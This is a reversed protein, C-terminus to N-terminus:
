SDFVGTEVIAKGLAQIVPVSVSNGLLKMWRSRGAQLRFDSPFGQIRCAEVKSIKRYNGQKYIQEIFANKYNELKSFEVNRTAVFDNTDSAVLTSFVESQPLYIRNIGNIGSSIKSNKFEYRIEMPSIIEKESLESLVSSFRVGNAVLSKSQKYVSDLHIQGDNNLSMVIDEQPSLSRKEQSLVNYSYIIEKLVGKRVLSKLASKKISSDISKLQEFSLPNGDRVGFKKKRRNRLITYCLMEEEESINDILDWSHITSHGNRIDNFLFFDNVEDTKQFKTRAMPVFEGFIDTSNFKQKDVEEVDIDDLVQYLKESSVNSGPIRFKRFDEINRFGVIYVRIRNQLVGYDHSNLVYAKGHYGCEKIRRLIFDLAKKNRPDSLGKVNEFIFAKPRSQNLLYITDNWLQGRDDEFGLNKGAISWSQCPVGATLLDHSPLSKIKRIDGLNNYSELSHNACYASIADKAVESFALCEGGNRELGLHFGGIGAFLDIFTFKRL